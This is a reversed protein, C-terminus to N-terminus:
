DWADEIEERIDNMESAFDDLEDAKSFELSNFMMVTLFIILLRHLLKM